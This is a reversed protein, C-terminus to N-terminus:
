ALNTAEFMNSVVRTAAARGVNDKALLGCIKHGNSKPMSDTLGRRREAKVFSFM